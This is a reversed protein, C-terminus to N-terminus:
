CVSVWVMRVIYPALGGLIIGLAGASQIQEAKKVFPCSGRRVLVLKGTFCAHVHFKRSGMRVILLIGM